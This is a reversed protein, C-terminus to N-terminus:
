DDENEEKCWKRFVNNFNGKNGLAKKAICLALGTEKSFADGEQCKVMTKTGDAWFVITAPDNHIVKVIDVNGKLNGVPLLSEKTVTSNSNELDNLHVLLTMELTPDFSQGAELELKYDLLKMGKPLSDQIWDGTFM